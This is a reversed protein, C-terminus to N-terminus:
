IDRPPVLDSPLPQYARLRERKAAEAETGDRLVYLLSEADGPESWGHDYAVSSGTYRLDVANLLEDIARLAEKVKKRSALALPEANRQLALDLDRHALHRNRWDRAFKCNDVVAELLGEAESNAGLDLMQPLALLTLNDKKGISTSDTLRAIHLLIDEWMVDQILNFFSPAASNLLDIREPKTGFLIAFNSWKWHLWVCEKYLRYFFPGLKPGMSALYGHENIEVTM